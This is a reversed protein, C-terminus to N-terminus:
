QWHASGTGSAPISRITTSEFRRASAPLGGNTSRAFMVNTGGGHFRNSVSAVMYINNNTPGGSRDVALFM